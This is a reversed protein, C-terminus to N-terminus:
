ISDRLLNKLFSVVAIGSERKREPM